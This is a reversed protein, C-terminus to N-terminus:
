STPSKVLKSNYIYYYYKYIDKNFFDSYKEKLFDSNNKETTSKSKLPGM